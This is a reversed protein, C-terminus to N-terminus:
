GWGCAPAPANDTRESRLKHANPPMHRHCRQDRDDLVIQEKAFGHPPEHSRKAIVNRGERRCGIKECRRTEGFGAAQDSVDMHRRHGPELEIFVENLRTVRNRRDENSGVGVVNVAGAGHVM